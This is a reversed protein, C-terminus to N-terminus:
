QDAEGSPWRKYNRNWISFGREFDLLLLSADSQARPTPAFEGPYYHEYGLRDIFTPNAAHWGRHQM